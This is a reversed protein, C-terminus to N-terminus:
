EATGDRAGGILTDIHDRLERNEARLSEVIEILRAVEKELRDARATQAEAEERWADRAGTKVQRYVLLLFLCAGGVIEAAGTLDSLGM